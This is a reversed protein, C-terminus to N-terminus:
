PTGKKSISVPVFENFKENQLFIGLRLNTKTGVEKIGSESNGSFFSQNQTFFPRIEM